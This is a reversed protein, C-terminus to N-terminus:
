LPHSRAFQNAFGPSSVLSSAVWVQSRSPGHSGRMRSSHWATRSPTPTSSRGPKERKESVPAPAASQNREMIVPPSGFVPRM